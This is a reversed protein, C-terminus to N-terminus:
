PYSFGEFFEISQYLVLTSQSVKTNEFNRVRYLPCGKDRRASFPWLVVLCVRIGVVHLSLRFPCVYQILLEANPSTSILLKTIRPTSLPTLLHSTSSIIM